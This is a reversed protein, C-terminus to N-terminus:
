ARTGRGPVTRVLRLGLLVLAAGAVGAVGAILLSHGRGPVGARDAPTAFTVAAPDTGATLRGALTASASAAQAAEDALEQDSSVLVRYPVVLPALRDAEASVARLRAQVVGPRRGEDQGVAAATALAAREALLARYLEDPAVVRNSTRFRALAATAASARSRSADARTQAARMPAAYVQRVGSEVVASVVARADPGPPTASYGVTVLPSGDAHDVTLRDALEGGDLGIGDAATRLVSDSDLADALALAGSVATSGSTTGEPPVVDVTASVSDPPGGRQVVWTTAVAVSPLAVVLAAAPLLSRM